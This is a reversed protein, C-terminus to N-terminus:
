ARRSPQPEELGSRLREIDLARPFFGPTGRSICGVRESQRPRNAIAAELGGVDGKRCRREFLSGGLATTQNLSDSLRLRSKEAATPPPATISAAWPSSRFIPRMRSQWRHRPLCRCSRLSHRARGPMAKGRWCVRVEKRNPRRPSDPRPLPCCRFREATRHNATPQSPSQFAPLSLRPKPFKLSSHRRRRRPRYSETRRHSRISAPPLPCCRTYGPSTPSKRKRHTQPRRLTFWEANRHRPMSPSSTRFSPCGSRQRRTKRRQRKHLPCSRFNEKVVTFSPFLKAGVRRDILPWTDGGRPRLFCSEHPLAVVEQDSTSPDAPFLILLRAFYRNTSPIVAAFRM